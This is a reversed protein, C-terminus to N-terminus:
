EVTIIHTVDPDFVFTEEKLIKAGYANNARYKCTMEKGLVEYPDKGSKTYNEKFRALYVDISDSKHEAICENTILELARVMPTRNALNSYEVLEFSAPANLHAKMYDEILAQAQKEPTKACAALMFVCAANVCVKLFKSKM